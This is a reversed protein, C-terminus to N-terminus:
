ILESVKSLDIMYTIESCRQEKTLQYPDPLLVLGFKKVYMRAESSYLKLSVSQAGSRLARNILNIQKEKRSPESRM